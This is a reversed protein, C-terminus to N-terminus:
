LDGKRKEDDVLTQKFLTSTATHFVVIGEPNRFGPAAKSGFDRLVQIAVTWPETNFPGEFIVPVVHCCLPAYLQKDHLLAPDDGWHADAWRSVKFLSFRKHDLGYRRQLGAGWWEGYHRGPGLGEALEVAHELVWGAFGFNDAKGPQLWRNRSGAWVVLRHEEPIADTVFSSSLVHGGSVECLAESFDETECAPQVVVQANTGDIKETIVVDRQLRGIKNFSIHLM